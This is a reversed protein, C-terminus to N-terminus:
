TVPQGWMIESVKPDTVRQGNHADLTNGLNWGVKMHKVADNASEFASIEDDAFAIIPTLMAFVMVIILRIAKLGRNIRKM